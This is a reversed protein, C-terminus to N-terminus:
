IKKNQTTEQFSALCCSCGQTIRQTFRLRAAPRGSLGQMIGEDLASAALCVSPTYYRSFFCRRFCLQGPLHGELQIGIDHYLAVTFKEIDGQKRLFFLRRLFRGTRYAEENMRRLLPKDIGDQLHDRTYEAYLHLAEDIPRTWLRWAPKGLARATLNMLQQLAIRRFLSSTIFNM